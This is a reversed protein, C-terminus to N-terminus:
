DFESANGITKRALVSLQKAESFLHVLFLLFSARRRHYISVGHLHRAPGRGTLPERCRFQGPVAALKDPSRDRGMGLSQARSPRRGVKTVPRFPGTEAPPGIASVTVRARIPRGGLRGSRESPVVM